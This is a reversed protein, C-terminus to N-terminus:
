SVKKVVVRFADRAIVEVEVGKNLLGSQSFGEYSKGDIVVRGSPAMTTAAQGRQGILDDREGEDSREGYRIRSGSTKSLFLRKGYKTKPLMQFEIFVATTIVFVSALLTIVAGQLQYEQYSIWVAGAVCAVGLLGLIGGPVLIEFSILLLAAIILGIIAIM